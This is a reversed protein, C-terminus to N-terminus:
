GVPLFATPYPPPPSLPSPPNDRWLQASLYPRYHAGAVLEEVEPQVLSEQQHLLPFLEIEVGLRKLEQIEALIFTETLKPFRSVIIGLREGSFPKAEGSARTCAAVSM